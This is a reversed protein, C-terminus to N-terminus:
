VGKVRLTFAVTPKDSAYLRIGSASFVVQSDINGMQEKEADTMLQTSDAGLIYCDCTSEDTYKDTDIFQTFPYTTSGTNAVWNSVTVAFENIAEIANFGNEIRGEMDNMNQANWQDGEQSVTGVSRVVTVTQTNQTLVDTLVRRNPYEAITDKWTKREFAM